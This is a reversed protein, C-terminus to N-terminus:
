ISCYIFLRPSDGFLDPQTLNKVFGPGSVQARKIMKIVYLQTIQSCYKM